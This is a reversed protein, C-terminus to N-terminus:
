DPDTSTTWSDIVLENYAEKPMAKLFLEISQCAAELANKANGLTLRKELGSEPPRFGRIYQQKRTLHDTKVIKEPKAHVIKNRLQLLQLLEKWPHSSRDFQLQLREALLRLKAVTSASEFDMWNAFLLEGAANAFAEVSLACMTFAVLLDSERHQASKEAAEVARETAYLLMHHASFFRKQKQITTPTTM